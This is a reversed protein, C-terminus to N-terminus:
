VRRVAVKLKQEGPRNTEQQLPSLLDNIDEMIGISSWVCVSLNYINAQQIKGGFLQKWLWINLFLRSSIRTAGGLNKRMTGRLTKRARRQSQDWGSVVDFCMHGPQNARQQRDMTRDTLEYIDDPPHMPGPTPTLPHQVHYSRSLHFTDLPSKDRETPCVPLCFKKKRGALAWNYSLPPHPTPQNRYPAAPFRSRSSPGTGVGRPCARFMSAM